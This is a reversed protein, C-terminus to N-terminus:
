EKEGALLSAAMGNFWSQQACVSACMAQRGEETLTIRRARWEDRDEAREIL